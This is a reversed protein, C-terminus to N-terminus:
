RDKTRDGAQSWLTLAVGAIVLAGAAFVAWWGWNIRRDDLIVTILGAIVFGSGIALVAAVIRYFARM